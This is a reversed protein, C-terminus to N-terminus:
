SNFVFHMATEAGQGPLIHLEPKLISLMSAKTNWFGGGGEGQCSPSVRMSHLEALVSLIGAIMPNSPTFVKSGKCCELLKTIFPLVAILRGRQYADVIVQPTTGFLPHQGHQLANTTVHTILLPSLM